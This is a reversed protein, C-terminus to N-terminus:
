EIDIRKEQENLLEILKANREDSSTKIKDLKDEQAQKNTSFNYLERIRLTAKKVEEFNGLRLYPFNVTDERYTFQLKEIIGNDYLITGNWIIGDDTIIKTNTIANM